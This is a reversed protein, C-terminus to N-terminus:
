AGDRGGRALAYRVQAETLPEDWWVGAVVGITRYGLGADRLARMKHRKWASSMRAAALPRWYRGRRQRHADHERLAAAPLCWRVITSVAPRVGFESDLLGAIREFSWGAQRLHAARAAVKGPYRVASM